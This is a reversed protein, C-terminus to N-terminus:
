EIVKKVKFFNEERDPANSLILEREEDSSPSLVDERWVNGMKIAHSTPEINDTDLEKLQDVYDLISTLQETFKEKEQDSLKLRALRAVYEVDKTTIKM